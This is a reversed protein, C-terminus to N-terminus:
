NVDEVPPAWPVVVPLRLPVEEVVDFDAVTATVVVVFTAVLAAVVVAVVDVPM